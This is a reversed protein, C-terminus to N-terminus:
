QPLEDEGEEVVAAAAAHDNAGQEQGAEEEDADDFQGQQAAGGAGGAAAGLGPAFSLLNDLRGLMAAQNNINIHPVPHIIPTCVCM